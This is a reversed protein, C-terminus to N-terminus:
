YAAPEGEPTTHIPFEFLKESELPSRLWGSIVYETQPELKLDAPLAYIRENAPSGPLNLPQGLDLPEPAPSTSYRRAKEIAVVFTAEGTMGALLPSWIRLYIGNGPLQNAERDFPERPIRTLAQEKKTVLEGGGEEARYDKVNPFDGFQEAVRATSTDHTPRFNSLLIGDSCIDDLGGHTSRCTVLRSGKETLWYDNVYRNDLSILITAPNLAGRTLGRVIRELALPYHNTMTAAMWEDAAAFGGADLVNNRALEDV